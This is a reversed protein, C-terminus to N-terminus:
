GRAPEGAQFALRSKRVFLERDIIVRSEEIREMLRHLDSKVFVCRARAKGDGAHDLCPLMAPEELSDVSERLEILRAAILGTRVPDREDDIPVRLDERM